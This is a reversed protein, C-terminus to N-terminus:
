EPLPGDTVEGRGAVPPLPSAAPLRYRTARGAGLRRLAGLATLRNLTQKATERPLGLEEAVARNTVEGRRAAIKLVAAQNGSLRGEEPLGFLADRVMRQQVLLADLFAFLWPSIDPRPLNRSAQSRRLALYYEAWNRAIAKELSGYPIYAHGCRLLLLNTLLRGLRGNGDAFPRIALFELLYAAAVVVPHFEGARSRSAYWASLAEMQAPILLPGPARLAVPEMMWRRDTSGSASATKYRGARARGRTDRRFIGAHLGLIRPEDPAIAGRGEFVARLTEAYGSDAASPAIGALRTSEAASEAAVAALRRELVAGPPKPTGDWWGRFAEVQAIRAVLGHLAAAPLHRLRDDFREQL